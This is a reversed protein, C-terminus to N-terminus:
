PLKLEFSVVGDHATVNEVTAGQSRVNTGDVEIEGVTHPADIQRMALYAMVLHGVANPHVTDPIMTSGPEKERALRQVEAMPHFLDIVPVQRDRALSVIGWAMRSLTDNYVGNDGRLVDDIPSTTFLVERAGATGNQEDRM